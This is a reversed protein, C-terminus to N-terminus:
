RRHFLALHHSKRHFPFRPGKRKVASFVSNLGEMFANTTGQVWHGLIGELHRTIMAACKRMDAFLPRLHKAAIWDVWRCWAPLKRRAILADAFQYNEQLDLRM